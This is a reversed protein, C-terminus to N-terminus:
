LDKVENYEDSTIGYNYQTYAKIKTISKELMKYRKNKDKQAGEKQRETDKVQDSYDKLQDAFALLGAPTYETNTPTYSPYTALTNALNRLNAM